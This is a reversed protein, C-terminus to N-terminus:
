AGMLFSTTAVPPKLIRFRAQDVMWPNSDNRITFLPWNLKEDYDCAQQLDYSSPKM